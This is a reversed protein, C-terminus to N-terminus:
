NDSPPKKAGKKGKAQQTGRWPPSADSHKSDRRGTENRCNVCRCASLDKMRWKTNNWVDRDSSVVSDLRTRRCRWGRACTSLCRGVHEHVHQAGSRWWPRRKTRKKKGRLQRPGECTKEKGECRGIVARQASRRRLVHTGHSVTRDVDVRVTWFPHSGARTWGEVGEPTEEGEGDEPSFFSGLPPRTYPGNTSRHFSPEPVQPVPLFPGLWPLLSTSLFAVLASWFISEQLGFTVFIFFPDVPTSPQITHGVNRMSPIGILVWLWPSELRWSDQRFSLCVPHHKCGRGM